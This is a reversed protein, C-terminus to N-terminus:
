RERDSGVPGYKSYKRPREVGGGGVIVGVLTVVLRSVTTSEARM